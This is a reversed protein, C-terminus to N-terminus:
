PCFRTLFPSPTLYIIGKYLYAATGEEDTSCVFWFELFNGLSNALTFSLTDYREEFSAVFGWTFGKYGYLGPHYPVRLEVGHMKLATNGDPIPSIAGFEFDEDDDFSAHLGFPGSDQAVTAGPAENLKWYGILNDIGWVEDLAQEFDSTVTAGGGGGEEVGVAVGPTYTVPKWKGTITWELLVGAGDAEFLLEDAGELLDDLPSSSSISAGDATLKAILAKRQGVFEGPILSVVSGAASTQLFTIYAQLDITKPTGTIVITEEVPEPPAGEDHLWDALGRPYCEREFDSLNGARVRDFDELWEAFAEDFRRDRMPQLGEHRYPNKRPDRQPHEWNPPVRRIERGM